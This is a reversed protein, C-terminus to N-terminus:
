CPQKHTCSLRDLHGFYNIIQNESFCPQKHTCSLRDLNGFYIIVLNECLGRELLTVCSHYSLIYQLCWYVGTSWLFFFVLTSYSLFLKLQVVCQYVPVELLCGATTSDHHIIMYYIYLNYYAMYLMYNCCISLILLNDVGRTSNITEM